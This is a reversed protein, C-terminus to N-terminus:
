PLGLDSLSQLLWNFFIHFTTCKFACNRISLFGLILMELIFAVLRDCHCCPTLRTRNKPQPNSDLEPWPLFCRWFFGVLYWCSVTESYIRYLFLSSFKIRSLRLFFLLFAVFYSLTDLLKRVSDIVFYVVILVRQSAICLTIAAFSVLIVWLISICSCRTASLQVM